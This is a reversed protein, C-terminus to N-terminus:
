AAELLLPGIGVGVLDPVPQAKVPTSVTRDLKTEFLIDDVTLIIDLYEKISGCGLSESHYQITSYLVEDVPLYKRSCEVLQAQVKRLAVPTLEGSRAEVLKRMSDPELLEMLRRSHERDPITGKLYRAITNPGWDLLRGLPTAGVDYKRLVEKIQATTIAGIAARYADHALHINDDFLDGPYVEDGCTLCYAHYQIASVDKERVRVTETTEEVRFLVDGGCRECYTTM